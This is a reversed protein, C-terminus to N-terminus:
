LTRITLRVIRLLAFSIKALRDPPQLLESSKVQHLAEICFNLQRAAYRHDWWWAGAMVVLITLRLLDRITFRFPMGANYRRGM